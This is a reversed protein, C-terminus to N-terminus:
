GIDPIGRAAAGFAKRAEDLLRLLEQNEPFKRRLDDALNKLDKVRYNLTSRLAKTNVVDGRRWAEIDAVVNKWGSALNRYDREALGLSTLVEFLKEVATEVRGLVPPVPGMDVTGEIVATADASLVWDRVVCTAEIRFNRGDTTTGRVELVNDRIQRVGSVKAPIAAHEHLVEKAITPPDLEFWRHTTIEGAAATCHRRDYDHM